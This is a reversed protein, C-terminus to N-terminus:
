ALQVVISGRATTKLRTDTFIRRGIAFTKVHEETLLHFKKNEQFLYVCFDLVYVHLDEVFLIGYINKLKNIEWHFVLLPLLIYINRM